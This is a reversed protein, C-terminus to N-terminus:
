PIPSPSKIVKTDAIVRPMKLQGGRYNEVFFELYKLDEQKVEIDIHGTLLGEYLPYLEISTKIQQVIFEKELPKETLLEILAKNGEKKVLALYKTKLKSMLKDFAYVNIPLGFAKFMAGGQGEIVGLKPHKIKIKHLNRGLVRYIPLGSDHKGVIEIVDGINYNPMMLTMMPTPLIRGKEGKKADFINVREGNEKEIIQICIDPVMELEYLGKLVDRSAAMLSTETAAYLDCFHVDKVGLSHLKDKVFEVFSEYFVDGGTVIILEDEFINEKIRELLVIVLLQAAYLLDYPGKDKIEDLKDIFNNAYVTFNKQIFVDALEAGVGSIYEREGAISLSRKAKNIGWNKEVIRGVVKAFLIMDDKTLKVLKKKITGTTYLSKYAPFDSPLSPYDETIPYYVLEDYSINQLGPFIKKTWKNNKLINFRDEQYTRWESIGWDLTIEYWKKSERIVYKKLLLKKISHLINVRNM